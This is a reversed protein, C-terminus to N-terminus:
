RATSIMFEMARTMTELVEDLQSATILGQELLIKGLLRHKGQKVNERAQIKLAADLQNETIFGKEIAITGLRKQLHKEMHTQISRRSLDM